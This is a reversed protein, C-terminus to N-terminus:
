TTKPRVFKGYNREFEEITAKGHITNYYQKYYGALASVVDADPLPAPVVRYRLRALLIALRLDWELDEAQRGGIDPYKGKFHDRLWDFTAPEMQFVGVAPGGGLQWLYTGFHSEQAATGLLLNIAAESCLGPGYESLVRRILERFQNSDFSM